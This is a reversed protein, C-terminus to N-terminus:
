EAIELLKWGGPGVRVSLAGDKVEVPQRSEADRVSQPTGKLEVRVEATVKADFTPPEGVFNTVGKNNFMWLLWGKKTRNVGFQVDGKVKVPLTEEQVRRFVAAILGCKTEGRYLRGHAENYDKWDSCFFTRECGAPLMGDAALTVVKGKGCANVWAVVHGLDDHWLPKATTPEGEKLVYPEALPTRVGRDDVLAAGSGFVRRGPFSVGALEATVQGARVADEAVFLTGGERVYRDLAAAMTGTSYRYVGFLAAAKYPRLAAFTRDADDVADPCVVDFIDGFESNYFNCEIGKMWFERVPCGPSMTLMPASLRLNKFFNLRGDVEIKEHLPFLLAMPSYAIGRDVTKSLENMHNLDYAAQTPVDKGDADKRSHYATWNEPEVFQAGILWGYLNQRAILSFSAGRDLGFHRYGKVPAFSNEGAERRGTKRNLAEYFSATYWAYPLAFQRAAGKLAAAAIRWNPVSMQTTAEYSLGKFGALAQLHLLGPCTSSFTWFADSGFCYAKTRRLAASLFGDFLDGNGAYDIFSAPFAANMRQLAAADKTQYLTSFYTGLDSDFECMAFFGLFNPHAKAWAAFGERDAFPYADNLRFAPREGAFVFVFPRDPELDGALYPVKRKGARAICEEITYPKACRKAAPLLKAYGESRPCPVLDSVGDPPLIVVRRGCERYVPLDAPTEVGYGAWGGDGLM